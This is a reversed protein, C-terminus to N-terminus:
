AAHAATYATPRASTGEWCQAAQQPCCMLCIQLESLLQPLSSQEGESGWM